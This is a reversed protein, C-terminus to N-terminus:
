PHRWCCPPASREVMELDLLAARSTRVGRGLDRGLVVSRECRVSSWAALRSSVEAEISSIEAVTFFFASFALLGVLKGAVRPRNGLATSRHDAVRDIRHARMSSNRPWSRRCMPTISSVRPLGVQEREVGRDFRCSRALGAAPERHHRGLHAAQRLAGRLGGLVDLIQDGVARALHFLADIEDVRVTRM